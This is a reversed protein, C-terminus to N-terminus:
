KLMSTPLADVSLHAKNVDKQLTNQIEPSQLNPVGVRDPQQTTVVFGAMQCFVEGELELTFVFIALPDILGTNFREARQRQRCDHILLKEANM